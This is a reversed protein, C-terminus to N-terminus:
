VLRSAFSLTWLVIEAGLALCALAYGRGLRELVPRNAEHFSDLWVAVAQQLEDLEADAQEAQELAVRGSFELVLEHPLLVYLTAAVCVLYAAVALVGLVGLQHRTAAQGALFSGAISAAALITAARSRLEGQRM